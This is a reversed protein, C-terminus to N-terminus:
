NRTPAGSVLHPFRPELRVNIAKRVNGMRGQTTPKAICELPLLLQLGKQVPMALRVNAVRAPRAERVISAQSANSASVRRSYNLAIVTPGPRVLRPQAPELRASTAMPARSRRPSDLAAASSARRVLGARARDRQQTIPASSAILKQLPERPASKAQVANKVESPRPLPCVPAALVSTAPTVCFRILM